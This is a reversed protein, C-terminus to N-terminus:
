NYVPFEGCCLSIESAVPESNEKHQKTCMRSDKAYSVAVSSSCKYASKCFYTCGRLDFRLCLGYFCTFDASFLLSGM